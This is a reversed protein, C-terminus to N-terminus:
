VKLKLRLKTKYRCVVFHIFQRSQRASEIQLSLLYSFISAVVFYLAFLNVAFLKTLFNKSNLMLYLAIIKNISCVVFVSAITKRVMMNLKDVEVALENHESILDLLLNARRNIIVKGNPIISKIQHHLQDFRMKYYLLLCSCTIGTISIVIYTNIYFPTIIITHMLWYLQKSKITLILEIIFIVTLTIPFGYYLLVIICIRLYITLRNYNNQNLKHNLMIKKAIFYYIKFPSLGYNIEGFLFDTKIILAQFMGITFLVMLIHFDAPLFPNEILSFIYNSTLFAFHLGCVALSLIYNLICLKFRKPNKTGFNIDDIGISIILCIKLLGFLHNVLNEIGFHKKLKVKVKEINDKFWNKRM